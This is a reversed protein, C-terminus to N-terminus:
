DSPGTGAPRAAAGAAASPAASRSVHEAMAAELRRASSQQVQELVTMAAHLRAVESELHRLGAAVGEVATRLADAPAPPSSARPRGLLRRLWARPSRAQGGSDVDRSAAAEALRASRHLAEVVVPWDTGSAPPAPPWLPAVVPGSHVHQAEVEARLRELIQREEESDMDSSRSTISVGPEAPFLFAFRPGPSAIM